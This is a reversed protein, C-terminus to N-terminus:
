NCAAARLHHVAYIQLDALGVAGDGNFDACVTYPSMGLHVAAYAALDRLDVARDCVIGGPGIMDPSNVANYYRLVVATNPSVGSADSARIDCVAPAQLCGGANVRIEVVGSAGAQAWFARRGGSLDGWLHSQESCWCLAQVAAASYVVYVKAYPWPSGAANKVTVEIVFGPDPAPLNDPVHSLTTPENVWSSPGIQLRVQSTVPSPVELPEGSAALPALVALVATSLALSRWSM